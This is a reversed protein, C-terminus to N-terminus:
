VIPILHRAIRVFNTRAAVFFSYNKRPIFEFNRYSVVDVCYGLDLFTRDMQVSEWDHTHANFIPEGPKRLFPEIIFDLLMNGMVQTRPKLSVVKTDVDDVPKFKNLKVGLHELGRNLLQRVESKM